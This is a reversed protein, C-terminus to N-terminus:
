LDVCLLDDAADSTYLLCSGLVNNGYNKVWDKAIDYVVSRAIGCVYALGNQTLYPMGNELVGMEIGDVAKEVEVDLDLVYQNGGAPQPPSNTTLGKNKIPKDRAPQVLNKVVNEVTDPILEIIEDKPLM